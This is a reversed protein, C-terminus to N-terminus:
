QHSYLYGGIVASLIAVPIIIDNIPAAQAYYPREVHVPQAYYVPREVRVQRQGVLARQRDWGRQYGRNDDRGSAAYYQHQRQYDREGGRGPDAFAPATAALLACASLISILKKTTNM